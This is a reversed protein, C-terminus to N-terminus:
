VAICLSHIHVHIRKNRYEVVKRSWAADLQSPWHTIANNHSGCFKAEHAYEGSSPLLWCCLLLSNHAANALSIWSSFPQHTINVSKGRQWRSGSHTRTRINQWGLEWKWEWCHHMPIDAIRLWIAQNTSAFCVTDYKYAHLKISKKKGNKFQKGSQAAILYLQM